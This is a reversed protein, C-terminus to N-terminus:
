PPPIRLPIRVTRLYEKSDGSDERGKEEGLKVMEHVPGPGTTANTSSLLLETKEGKSLESYYQRNCDLLVTSPQM